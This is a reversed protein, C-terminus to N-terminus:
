EHIKEDLAAKVEQRPTADEPLASDIAFPAFLLAPQFDSLEKHERNCRLFSDYHCRVQSTM